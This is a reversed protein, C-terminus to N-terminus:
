ELLGEPPAVLRVAGEEVEVYPAQLPVLLRRAGRRVVLVDQAGTDMVDVVEGLPEEGLLVPLGVLQFYYWGGEPEPLQEPELYVDLGALEEAAERTTVGVFHVVLDGALDELREVARWGLGELYVRPQGLLAEPAESRFKLGGALAHPRGLRGIRVRKM